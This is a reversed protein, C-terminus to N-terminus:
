ESSTGGTMIVQLASNLTEVQADIYTTLASEADEQSLFCESLDLVKIKSTFHEDEGGKIFVVKVDQGSMTFYSPTTSAVTLNDYDVYWFTEAQFELIKQNLM